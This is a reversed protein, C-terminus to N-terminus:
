YKVHGLLTCLEFHATELKLQELCM